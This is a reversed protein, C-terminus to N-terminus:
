DLGRYFLAPHRFREGDEAVPPTPLTTVAPDEGRPPQSGREALVRGGCTPVDSLPQDRPPPQPAAVACVRRDADGGSSRQHVTAREPVDARRPRGLRDAGSSRGTIM